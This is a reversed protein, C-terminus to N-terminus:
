IEEHYPDHPKSVPVSIAVSAPEIQPSMKPLTYDSVTTSSVTNGKLKDALMNMKGKEFGSKISEKNKPVPNEEIIEIGDKKYLDGESIYPALPVEDEISVAYSPIPVDEENEIIGDGGIVKNREGKVIKENIDNIMMLIRSPSLDTILSLQEEYQISSIEGALFKGTVRDVEGMIDIPLKYKNGIEYIKKKYDADEEKIEVQNEKKIIEEKIKEFITRNIENVLVEADHTKIRMREELEKVYNNPNMLGALLLGTETELVDIQEETYKNRKSIEVLLAKWQIFDIAQITVKPLNERAEEIKIQLLDKEM